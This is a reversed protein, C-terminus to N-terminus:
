EGEIADFCVIRLLGRACCVHKHPPSPNPDCGMSRYSEFSSETGYEMFFVFPCVHRLRIAKKAFSQGVVHNWFATTEFVLIRGRTFIDLAIPEPHTTYVERQLLVATRYLVHWSGQSGAARHGNRSCCHLGAISRLQTCLLALCM